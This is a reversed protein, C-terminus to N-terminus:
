AAAEPLPAPATGSEAAEGRGALFHRHLNVTARRGVSPRHRALWKETEGRGAGHLYTLLELDPKAKSEPALASTFRGAEILHFRHRALRADGSRGAARWRNHHLRIAEIVEIDRLMPQNFTIQNIRATIERASM